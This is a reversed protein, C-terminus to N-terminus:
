FNYYPVVAYIKFYRLISNTSKWYFRKYVTLSSNKFFVKLSPLLLVSCNSQEWQFWEPHSFYGILIWEWLFPFLKLGLIWRPMNRVLNLYLWLCIYDRCDCLQPHHKRYLLVNETIRNVTSMNWYWIQRLDMKELM